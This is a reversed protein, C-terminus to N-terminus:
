EDVASEPPSHSSDELHSLMRRGSRTIHAELAEGAAACDRAICSELMARHEDEAVSDGGSAVALFRYRESNRFVPEIAQVLWRSGSARYLAFHFQHHAERAEVGLGADLLSEHRDLFAAAQQFLGEDASTACREIAARELILRTEITDRLDKASLERVFAGRHPQIEVLGLSDLRRLAERVPMHSMDLQEALASLRLPHGAPIEGSVIMEHLQDAAIDVMTRPGSGHTSVTM